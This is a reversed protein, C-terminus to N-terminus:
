PVTNESLRAVEARSLERTAGSALDGLEVSGIAMRRLERVKAGVARVMRRVQRNRGEHIEIEVVGYSSWNGIERVVAPRTPGDDLEVGRRLRELQEEGLAPAVRVRYTKGVKSAPNALREAFETDNTFLLLGSTDKDLRGIPGVWRDVHGLLDYVTKGGEPDSLTTVYGRPKNLALYLPEARVVQRGDIELRAGEDVWADPSRVVRGDVRVRGGRVLAQAQTRSALGLRSLLRELTRRPREGNGGTARAM